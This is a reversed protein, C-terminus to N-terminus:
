AGAPRRLMRRGVEWSGRRWGICRCLLRWDALAERPTLAAAAAVARRCRREDATTAVAAGSALVARLEASRRGGFVTGALYAFLFVSLEGRALLASRYRSRIEEAEREQLEAKRVSICGGHQRWRYLSEALNAVPGDLAIRTWLDYDDSCLIRDTYRYAPRPRFVVSGHAFVNHFLMSARIMRDDAPVAVKRLAVGTEDTIDYASGLLLCDPHAEMYAMQKALREPHSVDDADHRAIFQGQAHDLGRNLSPSSTLNQPNRLVRVRPDRAAYEALIAPTSDTSCDDVILLEFDTFTQALVSGVSYPLVTSWNYTPIIVTVLPSM